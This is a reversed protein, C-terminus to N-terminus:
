STRGRAGKGAPLGDSYFSVVYEDLGSGLMEVFVKCASFMKLGNKM